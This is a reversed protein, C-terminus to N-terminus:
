HKTNLQAIFDALAAVDKLAPAAEFQSNLDIGM